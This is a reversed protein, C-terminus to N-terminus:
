RLRKRSGQLVIGEEQLSGDKNALKLSEDKKKGVFCGSLV